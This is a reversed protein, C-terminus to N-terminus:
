KDYYIGIFLASSLGWVLVMTFRLEMEWSMCNINGRIFSVLLYVVIVTFIPIRIYM